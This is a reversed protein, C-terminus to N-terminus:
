FSKLNSFFSKTIFDVEKIEYDLLEGVTSIANGTYIFDTTLKDEDIDDIYRSLGFDILLVIDNVPDVVINDESVDGHLIGVKHLKNLKKKIDDVYKVVQRRTIDPYANRYLIDGLTYPYKVMNLKYKGDSIDEIGLISPALGMAEAIIFFYLEKQLVDKTEM